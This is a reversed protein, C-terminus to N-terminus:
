SCDSQYDSVASEFDDQASRLASFEASCDDHGKSDAVCGAYHHLAETVDKLVSNYQDLAVKCEDTDSRAASSSLALLLGVALAIVQIRM